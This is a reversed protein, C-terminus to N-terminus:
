KCKHKPLKIKHCKNCCNSCPKPTVTVTPVPSPTVTVVVGDKGDQGNKGNEGDKGNTGDKGNVGDKPLTCNDLGLPGKSYAASDCPNTTNKGCQIAAVVIFLIFTVKLLNYMKTEM